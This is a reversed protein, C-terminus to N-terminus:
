NKIALRSYLKTCVKKSNLKYWSTLCKKQITKYFLSKIFIDDNQWLSKLLYKKM